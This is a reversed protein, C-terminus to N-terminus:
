YLSIDIKGKNELEALIIDALQENNEMLKVYAILNNNDWEIGCEIFPKMLPTKIPPFQKTLSKQFKFIKKMFSLGKEISNVIGMIVITRM